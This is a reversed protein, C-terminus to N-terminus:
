ESMDFRPLVSSGPRRVRRLYSPLQVGPQLLFQKGQDGQYPRRHDHVMRFIEDPIGAPFAECTPGAPGVEGRRFRACYLCLPAPGSMILHEGGYAQRGGRSPEM